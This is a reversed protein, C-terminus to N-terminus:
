KPPAPQPMHRTYCIPAECPPNAAPVADVAVRTNRVWNLCDFVRFLDVGGAAAQRVFYQVVNDPYNTYGVGNAGRLLMQLLLNPAAERILALREWPDETLFRMAVDFTAGRGCELSLPPPLARAYTGAIRAIDNTRMRTALLSQHGDRMTTDTVLVEKQTRMWEAFKQPGMRDLLQKAGSPINGNLYPVEPPAADDKPRPRGRAEPHGNVTVDGLYNLLKTARDQRKVQAFLEPT